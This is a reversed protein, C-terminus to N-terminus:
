RAPAHGAPVRVTVKTGAAHSDITVKGGLADARNQLSALGIHGARLAHALHTPDFGVGDDAVCLELDDGAQILKVNVNGAKAHKAVNTLLERTVRILFQRHVTSPTQDLHMTVKWGRGETHTRVVAAITEGLSSSQLIVPSLEAVLSRLRRHVTDLHGRAREIAGVDGKAADALEQRAALVYQLADDHIFESLVTREREEAHMAEMVLQRRQRESEELQAMRDTLARTREAVRGELQVLLQVHELAIATSDALAQALEVVPQSALTPQSWYLGIAGLPGDPRIPVMVMSRVCTPRYTDIPVGDASTVDEIVIPEGRTMSWSSVRTEMAFGRGNRLTGTADGNAYYGEDGDRLILTAGDADALDRAAIGVVDQVDKLSRARSLDQAARVLRALKDPSHSM